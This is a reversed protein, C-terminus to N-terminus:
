LFINQEIPAKQEAVLSRRARNAEFIKRLVNRGQPATVAEVLFTNPPVQVCNLLARIASGINLPFM